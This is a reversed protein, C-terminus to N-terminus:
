NIRKNIIDYDHSIIDPYQQKVTMKFHRKKTMQSHATGASHGQNRRETPRQRCRAQNQQDVWRCWCTGAEVHLRATNDDSRRDGCNSQSSCANPACEQARCGSVQRLERTAASQHIQSGSVEEFLAQNGSQNLHMLERSFTREERGRKYMHM